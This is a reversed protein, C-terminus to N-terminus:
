IVGGGGGGMLVRSCEQLAKERESEPYAYDLGNYSILINSYSEDKEKIDAFNGQDFSIYPFRKKAVAIMTDSYDIGRVKYGMEYLRLTTRGCGCALDLVSSEPPFYKKILYKEEPTLYYRGAYIDVIGEDHWHDMIERVGDTKNRKM